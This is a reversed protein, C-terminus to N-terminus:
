EVSLEGTYIYKLIESDDDGTSTKRFIQDGIENHHIIYERSVWILNILNLKLIEHDKFPTKLMFALDNFLNIFPITPHIQNIYLVNEDLLYLRDDNQPKYHCYIIFNIHNIIVLQDVNNDKLDGLITHTRDFTVGDLLAASLLEHIAERLNDSM